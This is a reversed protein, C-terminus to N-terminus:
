SARAPQRREGPVRRVRAGARPRHHERGVPLLRPESSITEVSDVATVAESFGGAGPRELTVAQDATGTTGLHAGWYLYAHTVTAGAPVELVATTRAQAATIGTSAEAQGAAPSDSRWFM